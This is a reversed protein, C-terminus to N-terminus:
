FSYGVSLKLNSTRLDNEGQSCLSRFDMGWQVGAYIKGYHAGVGVHWGPQFRNFTYDDGGMDKSDFLNVTQETTDSGESESDKIKNKAEGLVNYKFNLGVYPSLTVGDILNDFRYVFNVPIQLASFTLDSNRVSGVQYNLNVGAEVFMDKAVSFGHIYNLGIGNLSCSYDVDSISTLDYSVAVRNYSDATNLEFKPLEFSSKASKQASAVTAGAAILAIAICLKKM